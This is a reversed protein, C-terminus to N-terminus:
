CCVKIVYYSSVFTECYQRIKRLVLENEPFAELYAICNTLTRHTLRPLKPVDSDAGPPKGGVLAADICVVRFKQWQKNYFLEEFLIRSERQAPWGEGVTALKSGDLTVGRGNLSEYTGVFMKSARLVHSEAVERTIATGPFDFSGPAPVCVFLLEEEARVWVDKYKTRMVRLFLNNSINDGDNSGDM